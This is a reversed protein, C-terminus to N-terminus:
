SECDSVSDHKVKKFDVIVEDAKCAAEFDKSVYRYWIVIIIGKVM